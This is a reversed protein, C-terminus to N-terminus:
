NEGGTGDADDEAGTDEAPGDENSTEYGDDDATDLSPDDGSRLQNVLRRVTGADQELLFEEADTTQMGNWGFPPDLPKAVAWLESRTLDYDFEEKEAEAGAAQDAGAVEALAERVAETERPLADIELLDLMRERIQENYNRGFVVSPLTNKELFAAAITEPDYAIELDHHTEYFGLRKSPILAVKWPGAGDDGAAGQLVGQSPFYGQNRLATANFVSQPGTYRVASPTLEDEGEDALEQNSRTHAVTM